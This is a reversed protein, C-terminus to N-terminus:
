HIEAPQVYLVEVEFELSKGALPHNFDVTVLSEDFAMVVGPLETQGKDRFSVVLGEALRVSPDFQNRAIKQVNAPNHQGFGDKPEIIAIKREGARMGFLITEFSQPLNGDGIVFTAPSKEFTSDVIEGTDKLRLAFHFEIKCNPGIDLM